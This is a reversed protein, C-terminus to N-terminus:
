RHGTHIYELSFLHDCTILYSPCPCFANPVSLLDFTIPRTTTKRPKDNRRTRRLLHFTRQKKNESGQQQEKKVHIGAGTPYRTAEKNFVYSINPHTADQPPAM